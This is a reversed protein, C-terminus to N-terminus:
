AKISPLRSPNYTCIETTVMPILDQNEEETAESPNINFIKSVSFRSTVNAM